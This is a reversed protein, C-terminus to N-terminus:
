DFPPPVTLVVFIFPAVPHSVARAEKGCLFARATQHSTPSKQKIWGPFNVPLSGQRISWLFEETTPRLWSYREMKQFMWSTAFLPSGTGCGPNGMAISRTSKLERGLKLHFRQSCFRRAMKIGPLEPHSFLIRNLWNR